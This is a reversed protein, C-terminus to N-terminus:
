LQFDRILKMIDTLSIVGVPKFDGNVVWLRHLKGERLQKVVDALTADDMAVQPANSGPSHEELFEHVPKLFSPFHEAYLGRLDSASFNGTLRGSDDTVALASFNKADLKHLATLVTDSEKVSTVPTVGLGLDKFKREGVQKLDGTHLNEALVALVSSQSCIGKIQNASDVLPTRHLGKSFLDVVMTFNNDEYVPVYPDRSSANVVEGLEKWAMARGSIELSRLEDAKLQIDDPAVSLEFKVLDLIDCMALVEGSDSVVPVGLIKESSLLKIAKEVTDTAKLTKPAAGGELLTSLKRNAFFDHLPNPHAM